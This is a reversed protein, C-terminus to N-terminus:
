DETSSPVPRASGGSGGGLELEVKIWGDDRHDFHRYADLATDLPRKHSLVQTPDVAGTRVLELVIPIYKRHDCNGMKITLNKNMAKGIPFTQSAESYVGIIAVTGNKCVADIAWTLAMSPGDGPSWQDGDFDADPSLQRRERELDDGHVSKAAPGAHPRQADIGVADIVRDVGIDDTLRFITAVPDEADFDIVEAGLERAKALRSPEHDIAFVRGAGLQQASVIAFLGVPGCGFVAVNDGRTIEALTAGFYATPFIDSLLIAQEDTVDDPIKILGVNAFPVRAKEAQLGDFSGSSRPGGFFATGAQAGHPNARDCQSYCGARCYACSGCAITSPIIVRDGVSFNRVDPGLAEIVGVGEHGLITGPEMESITGRVLHLDTGCIASATLRVLADTPQEITPEPVDELRIDGIGRWVIAKM